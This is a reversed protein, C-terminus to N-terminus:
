SKPEVPPVGEPPNLSFPPPKLFFNQPRAMVRNMISVARLPVSWSLTTAKSLLPPATPTANEFSPLKLDVDQPQSIVPPHDSFSATKAKKIGPSTNDLNISRKFAVRRPNAPGVEVNELEFVESAKHRRQFSDVCCVFEDFIGEVTMHAKNLPSGKGVLEQVMHVDLFRKFEDMRELWNDKLDLTKIWDRLYRNMSDSKSGASDSSTKNLRKRFFEILYHRTAMHFLKLM